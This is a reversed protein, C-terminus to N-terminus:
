RRAEEDHDVGPGEEPRFITRHTGSQDRIEVACSRVYCVQRHDAQLEKAERYSWSEGIVRGCGLGVVRWMLGVGNGYRRIRVRSPFLAVLIPYANCDRVM